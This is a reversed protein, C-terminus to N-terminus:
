CSVSHCQHVATLEQVHSKGFPLTLTPVSLHPDACIWAPVLCKLSGLSFGHAHVQIKTVKVVARYKGWFSLKLLNQILLPYFGSRIRFSLPCTLLPEALAPGTTM